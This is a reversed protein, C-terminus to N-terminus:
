CGALMFQMWLENNLMSLRMLDAQLSTIDRDLRDLWGRYVNILAIVGAPTPEGANIYQQQLAVAQGLSATIRTHQAQKRSLSARSRDIDWNVEGLQESISECELSQATTEVFLPDPVPAIPGMPNFEDATVVSCFLCVFIGICKLM